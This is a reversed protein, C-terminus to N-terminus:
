MIFCIFRWLVWSCLVVLVAKTIQHLWYLRTYKAKAESITDVPDKLIYIRIGLTFFRFYEDWDFQKLDSFFLKQERESMRELAQRFRDNKINWRKTIFYSLASSFRHIKKYAKVMKRQRGLLVLVSDVIIGLLFHLLVALTIYVPYYKQYSFCHYWVAMKYPTYIGYKKVLYLHDKFILPQDNTSQYNYVPIKFNAERERSEQFSEAADWASVIMSNVCMDVPVFNAECEEDCHLVRLFGLGAGLVVGTPGYINNTWGRVPEKFTSTVIAPRQIGVPLGEGEQKVVDEAIQKSYTYTNPYKGILKDFTIDKGYRVDANNKELVEDEFSEVMGIIGEYNAAPPYIEEEIVGQTCNSYITSVHMFSKLRPMQRALRLLDRTAKVNIRIATKLKEDFRVTAAVHFVIDVEKILINRDEEGLGLNPRECDGEM